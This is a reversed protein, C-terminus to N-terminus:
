PFYPRKYTDKTTRTHSNIVSLKEVPMLGVNYSKLDVYGNM